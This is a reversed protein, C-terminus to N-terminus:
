GRGDPRRSCVGPAQQRLTGPGPGAAEEASGAAPTGSVDGSPEEDTYKGTALLCRARDVKSSSPRRWELYPVDSRHRPGIVYDMQRRDYPAGPWELPEPAETNHKMPAMAGRRRVWAMLEFYVDAVDADMVVDPHKTWKAPDKIDKEKVNNLNNKDITPDQTNLAYILATVGKIDDYGPFEREKHSFVGKEPLAIGVRAASHFDILM